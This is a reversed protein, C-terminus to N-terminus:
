NANGGHSNEAGFADMNLLLTNLDNHQNGMRRIVADLALLRRAPLREHNWAVGTNPNLSMFRFVHRFGSAARRYSEVEFDHIVVVAEPERAALAEITQSRGAENSSDDVFILDIGNLDATAAFAAMPSPVVELKLRQDNDAKEQVRAAWEPQDEVSHLANLDPFAKSNLFTLTSFEGAGLELIKRIRHIRALGILIPLHTGFPVSSREPMGHVVRDVLNRVERQM